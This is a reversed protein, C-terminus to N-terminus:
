NIQGEYVTEDYGRLVYAHELLQYTHVKQLCRGAFLLDFENFGLKARMPASGSFRPNVEFLYYRGASALIQLNLILEKGLVAHLRHAMEHIEPIENMVRAYQTAGKCLVREMILIELRGSVHVLSVTYEATSPLFSQILVERQYAEFLKKVAQLQQDNRVIHIGESSKGTTPKVILPFHEATMREDLTYSQPTNINHTAFFQAATLKNDFREIDDADNVWIQVQHSQELAAKERSLVTMEAESGPIVIQIRESEIVGTLARMYDPHNANPLVYFRDTVKRYPVLMSNSAGILRFHQRYQSAVLVKLLGEGVGYSSTGTVLINYM